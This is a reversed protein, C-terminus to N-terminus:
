EGPVLAAARRAIDRDSEYTLREVARDIEVWEVADFERDHNAVDGGVPNMLWFHVYKHVRAGGQAFWYDISGLEGVAEVELGTEELVERLATQLLAEGPEPTGKPLGWVRRGRSECIVIELGGGHLPRAVVGGASVADRIPARRV